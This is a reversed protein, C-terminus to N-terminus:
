LGLRSAEPKRAGPVTLHYIGTTSFVNGTINTVAAPASQHEEESAQANGRYSSARRERWSSEKLTGM